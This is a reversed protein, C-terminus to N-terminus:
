QFFLQSIFAVAPEHSYIIQLYVLKDGIRNLKRVRLIYKDARIGPFVDLIDASHRDYAAFFLRECNGTM